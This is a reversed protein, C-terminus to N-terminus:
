RGIQFYSYWSVTGNLINYRLIDHIKIHDELKENFHICRLAKKEYRRKSSKQSLKNTEEVSLRCSNEKRIRKHITTHCSMCCDVIVEPNYSLHHKIITGETTGCKFCRTEMNKVKLSYYVMM